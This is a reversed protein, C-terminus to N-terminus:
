VSISVGEKGKRAFLIMSIKEPKEGALPSIIGAFVVVSIGVDSSVGELSHVFPEAGVFIGTTGAVFLIMSRAFHKKSKKNLHDNHLEAELPKLSKEGKM